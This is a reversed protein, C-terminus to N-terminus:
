ATSPEANTAPAATCHSRSSIPKMSADLSSSASAIVTLSLPPTVKTGAKVPSPEGNQRLSARPDIVPSLRPTPRACIARASMSDSAKSTRAMVSANAAPPMVSECIRASPPAAAM